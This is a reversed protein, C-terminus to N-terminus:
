KFKFSIDRLKQQHRAQLKQYRKTFVLWIDLQTKMEPLFEKYASRTQEIAALCINVNYKLRKSAFRIATGNQNVAQLVIEEDDQLSEHAFQLARGYNSVALSVIERNSLLSSFVFELAEGCDKVAIKVMEVDNTYQSTHSLGYGAVSFLYKMFERDKFFDEFFIFAQWNMSLALKLFEKDDKHQIYVSKQMLTESMLRPHKQLFEFAGSFEQVFIILNPDMELAFEVIQQNKQAVSCVSFFSIGSKSFYFDRFDKSLILESEEKMIIELSEKSLNKWLFRKHDFTGESFLLEKLFYIDTALGHCLVSLSSPYKSLFPFMFEKSNRINEPVFHVVNNNMQVAMLSMTLDKLDNKIFPYIKSNLKLVELNFSYDDKWQQSLNPYYDANSTLIYKSFERDVLLDQSLLECDKPYIKLVKLVSEKSLFTSPFYSLISQNSIKSNCLAEFIEKTKIEEPIWFGFDDYKRGQLNRIATECIEVDMRMKKPLFIYFIGFNQGEKLIKMVFEKDLCFEKPIYEFFIDECDMSFINEKKKHIESIEKQKKDHLKREELSFWPNVIEHVFYDKNNKEGVINNGM